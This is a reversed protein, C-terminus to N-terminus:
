SLISFLFSVSFSLLIGLFTCETWKEGDETLDIDLLGGVASVLWRLALSFDRSSTKVHILCRWPVSSQCWSAIGSATKRTPTARYFAVRIRWRATRSRLSTCCPWGMLGTTTATLLFLHQVPHMSNCKSSFMNLGLLVLIICVLSVEM